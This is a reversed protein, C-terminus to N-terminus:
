VFDLHSFKSDLWCTDQFEVKVCPTKVKGNRPTKVNRSQLDFSVGFEEPEPLPLFQSLDRRQFCSIHVFGM